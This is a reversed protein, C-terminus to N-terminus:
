AAVECHHVRVRYTVPIATGPYTAKAVNLDNVLGRLAERHKPTDPPDLSVTIGTPIAIGAEDYVFSTEMQGSLEAFSRLLARVDHANGYHHILRDLMWEEANYACIKVRDMIAKAEHCLVERHIGSDTLSVHTPLSKRKTVLSAIEAELDRLKKVKNRKTIELGQARRREKGSEDLLVDGLDKKLTALKKRKDELVADAAKRAPNVVMTQPDAAETVYSVIDDLGHHETAYKFFNEQRWRAFMLAAIRAPPVERSLSTLIPTQHGTKTRVVIRRFPGNAGVKKQDEAIWFRLRRGEFRVQHRTFSEKPLCLSGRQYTIFDVGQSILWSFLKGDYGGRDFIVTFSREGLVERIAEIIRPMAKALNASIEETLFLLPRGDNDGVFYSHLGRIPRQAKTDYVEELKKKGSYAKVHGDVYLYASHVLGTDVWHQALNTSFLGAKGQAVLSTLKRRLTKVCPASDTGILLGFDRRRLHKAEELTSRSCITMFFLTSFVARVGFSVSHPLRYLSRAVKLLGTAELAPFYLALGMYAGSRVKPLQAPPDFAAQDSTAEPREQSDDASNDAQSSSTSDANEERSGATVTNEPTAGALVALDEEAAEEEAAAAAEGATTEEEAAESLGPTTRPESDSDDLGLEGQVSRYAATLHYLYPISVWIGTVAAVKARLVKVPLEANRAIIEMAEPTLKHPGKPGRKAPVVAAMGDKAFRAAIRGVTNRHVGFGSAIAVDSALGIRSLMAICAAEAAKDSIDYLQIPTPGYYVARQGQSDFVRLRKGIPIGPIHELEIIRAQVETNGEDAM